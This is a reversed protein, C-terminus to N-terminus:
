PSLFSIKGDAIYLSLPIKNALKSDECKRELITPGIEECGERCLFTPPTLALPSSAAGFSRIVCACVSVQEHGHTVLVMKQLAKLFSKQYRNEPPKLKISFSVFLRAFM